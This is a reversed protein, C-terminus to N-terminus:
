SCGQFSYQVRLLMLQQGRGGRFGGRDGGGGRGGRFGGRDGGRGGRFGGGRPSFGAIFADYVDTSIM